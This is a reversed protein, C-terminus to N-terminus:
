EPCHLNTLREKAKIVEPLDPDAGKWIQLFREYAAHAKCREGTGEYAVGLWYQTLAWNPNIRSLREYETIAQEFRGLELYSNALCGVSTDINWYFPALRQSDNFLRLAEDTHGAKMAYLGLLYHRVRPEAAFPLSPDPSQEGIRSRLKEAAQLDNRALATLLPGGLDNHYRWEQRAVKESQAWDSKALFLRVILNCATARDWDSPATKLYKQYQDLAERYRGLGFYVDGLHRTAFHFEPNLALAHNLAQIAEEYRGDQVYSMGLSDYANPEKPALQVYRQHAVIAEEYRGFHQYLFGLQNHIDQADPDIAAAQEFIRLAEEKRDTGHRLIFGLRFYAEIEQPYQKILEYLTRVTGELDGSAHAHWAKVYLKAKETLRSSLRFARDLYPKAREGENVRVFAYIYGIRAYAMAFQPDLAAAKELFALAESSHYGGAKEMALSYYRYADLSDTMVGTLGPKVEAETMAAGLHAALKLSLVDIQTLIQDPRDVILSEAAQLHGNRGDLLRVDVRMKEGLRVFSGTVVTEARSRHAIELSDELGLKEAGGQGLRNLLVSLQQRSLVTLGKSRSLNTILMDALGERLWNLERQGSQNEFYVVAIARKGPFQPLTVEADPRATRHGIILWVAVLVIGVVGSVTELRLKGDALLHRSPPLAKEIKNGPLLREALSDDVEEEVEIEVSTVEEYEFGAAFEAPASVLPRVEEVDAIFCYGAKPVTKIFRPHRPDDGFAKRLDVISQVVADDTVAAGRWVQEILEDRSVLRHRQDLLYLLVQFTQRRLHLEQGARRICGRAPDVEVEGIRYTLKTPFIM